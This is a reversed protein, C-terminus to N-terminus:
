EGGRVCTQYNVVGKGTTGAGFGVIIWSEGGPYPNYSSTQYYQAEFDTLLTLDFFNSNSYDLLPILEKYNPLRWDDYGAFNLTECYDLKDDLGATSYRQNSLYTLNLLTDTVTGDGNDVLASDPYEKGRICRVYNAEGKDQSLIRPFYGYIYWRMALSSDTPFETKSWYSTELGAFVTPDLVSANTFRYFITSYEKIHPLRWDAYGGLTLNQCYDVATQYDRSADDDSQQWMFNTITDTVTGDGNDTYAPMNISYDSDEGFTTTYSAAQGSDPLRTIITFDWSQINPLSAGAYNAISTSATVTYTYYILRSSPTFTATKGSCSVSGPITNNNEDKLSFTATTITSCDLDLNFTASIIPNFSIDTANDEPVTAAISFINEQSVSVTYITTSGDPASVVFELLNSYDNPTVSNEQNFGGVSVNRGTIEWTAILSTVNTGYPVILSITKETSNIVGSVDVSLATNNDALFKFSLMSKLSLGDRGSIAAEEIDTQIADIEDTTLGAEALGENIATKVIEITSDIDSDSVGADKLGLITGETVDDSMAAITENDCGDEKLGILAGSTVAKIADSMDSGSIGADALAGAAATSISKAVTAMESSQVGANSLNAAVKRVVTKVAAIIETSDIGADDLYQISTQVIQQLVNSYSATASYDPGASINKLPQNSQIGATYSSINGNLSSTISAVIIEIAALREDSTTLDVETETLSLQAGKIISPTLISLDTTQDAQDKYIQLLAAATIINVQSQSYGAALLDEELNDIFRNTLLSAATEFDSDSPSSGPDSDPKKCSFTCFIVLLLIAITGVSAKRTSFM